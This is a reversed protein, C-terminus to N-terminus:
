RIRQETEKFLLNFHIQLNQLKIKLIFLKNVDM